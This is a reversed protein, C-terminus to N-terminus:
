AAQELLDAAAYGALEPWIRCVGKAWTRKYGRRGNRVRSWGYPTTRVGHDTLYQAFQRNNLRLSLRKSEIGRVFPNSDTAM